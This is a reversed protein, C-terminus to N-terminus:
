MHTSDEEVGFVRALNTNDTHATPRSLWWSTIGEVLAAGGVMLLLPVLILWVRDVHSMWFLNEALAVILVGVHTLAAVRMVLTHILTEREDRLLNPRRVPRKATIHRRAKRNQYAHVKRLLEDTSPIEVIHGDMQVYAPTERDRKADHGEHATM